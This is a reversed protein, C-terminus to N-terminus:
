IVLEQGHQKLWKRWIDYDPMRKGVENWFAQSHNFVKLHTLEHVVVYELCEHPALILKWNFNLNRKASCSGWRTRQERITVRGYTENFSPAWRDIASKIDELSLKVLFGKLLTKVKAPEKTPSYVTICGDCLLVKGSAAKKIFLPLREGKFLVTGPLTEQVSEMRKHAARLESIHELVFRDALRVPYGKPAYLRIKGM